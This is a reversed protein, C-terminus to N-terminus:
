WHFLGGINRIMGTSMLEIMNESIENYCALKTEKIPPQLRATKLLLLFLYQAQFNMSNKDVV